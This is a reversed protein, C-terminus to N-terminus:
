STACAVMLPPLALMVGCSCALFTSASSSSDRSWASLSSASVDESRSASFVAVTAGIELALTGAATAAFGRARGLQRVAFGLDQRLEAFYEARSPSRDRDRGFRRCEASVVAIVGFRRVAEARAAEPTMGQAVLMQITMEVHFALEADVEQEVRRPGLLSPRKM